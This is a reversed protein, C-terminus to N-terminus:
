LGEQERIHMLLGECGAMIFKYVLSFNHEYYPDPVEQPYEPPAFEMLLRNEYLPDLRHQNITDMVVIYDSTELHSRNVQQARKNPHVPINQKKLEELTGRCPREGVHWSDTGASNVEFRNELGADRLLHNFVAEAMPSRCINGTCVFLVSIRDNKTM